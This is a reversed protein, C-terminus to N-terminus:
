EAIINYSIDEAFNVESCGPDSCILSSKYHITHNGKALPETIIYYGDAVVKSPGGALVGFV